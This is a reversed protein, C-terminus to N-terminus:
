NLRNELLAAPHNWLDSVDYEPLADFDCGLIGRTIIVVEKKGQEESIRIGCKNQEWTIGVIKINSNGNNSDDDGPKVVVHPIYLENGRASRAVHISIPRYTASILWEEDQDQPELSAKLKELDASSIPTTWIHWKDDQDHPQFGAKLKDLEAKSIPLVWSATAPEEMPPARTSEPM